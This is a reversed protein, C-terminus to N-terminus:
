QSSGPPILGGPEEVKTLTAASATVFFQCLRSRLKVQVKSGPLSVKEGAEAIVPHDRELVLRSESLACPNPSTYV